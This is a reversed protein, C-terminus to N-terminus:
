LRLVAIKKGTLLGGRRFLVTYMIPDIQPDTCLNWSLKMICLWRTLPESIWWCSATFAARRASAVRCAVGHVGCVHPHTWVLWARPVPCIRFRARANQPFGARGVRRWADARAQRGHWAETTTSLQRGSRETGRLARCLRLWSSSPWSPKLEM